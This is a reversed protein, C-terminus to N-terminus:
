SRGLVMVTAGRSEVHQVFAHVSRGTMRIIPRAYPAHEIIQDGEFAVAFCASPTEVRLLNPLPKVIRDKRERPM